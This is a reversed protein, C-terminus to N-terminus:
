ATSPRHIRRLAARGLEGFRRAARHALAEAQGLATWGLLRAIEGARRLHAVGLYPASWAQLPRAEAPHAFLHPHARRLSQESLADIIEAAKDWNKRYWPVDKFDELRYTAIPGWLSVKCGRHAAYAVHSGLTNTTVYEFADFLRAMRRLANRDTSDAGVIWPIGRRQFAPAWQGKRACAASICAVVVEFRGRISQLQEVYADEEFAHASNFVGHAPMVLLSGPVRAVPTAGVYAFPAGVAHVRLFGRQRLQQAQEANAVLHRTTRNGETLMLAPHHLQGLYSVGHKWSAVSPPAADYGLAAAILDSAGYYDAETRRPMQAYAPLQRTLWGIDTM